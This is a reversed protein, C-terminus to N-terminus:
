SRERHKEKINTCSEYMKLIADRVYGNTEPDRIDEFSYGSAGIKKNVVFHYEPKIIESEWVLGSPEDKIFQKLRNVEDSKIDEKRIAIDAEQELISVGFNRGVKIDLNGSSQENIELKSKLTDPVFIVFPKGYRTLDLAHMGAPVIIEENSNKNGCSNLILIIFSWFSLKYFAKNM